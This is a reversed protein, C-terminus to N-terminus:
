LLRLKRLRYLRRCVPLLRCGGVRGLAMCSSPLPFSGGRWALAIRALRAPPVGILASVFSSPRDFAVTHGIECLSEPSCSRLLPRHAIRNRHGIDDCGRPTHRDLRHAWLLCLFLHLRGKLLRAGHDGRSPPPISRSSSTWVSCSIRHSTMSSSSSAYVANVCRRIHPLSLGM